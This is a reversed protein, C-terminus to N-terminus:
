LTEDEEVIEAQEEKDVFPTDKRMIVRSIRIGDLEIVEFTLNRDEVKDGIEPERGLLGFVYGGITQFDENPIDLDYRENIDEIDMQSSVNLTNDDIKILEPTPAEDFEDYIEGVIEEIIDEVTVIGAIGGHEDVVAAIQNKKSIFDSLLDSIFKNEPIIMIERALSKIEFGEKEYTKDRLAKLADKANIVGIINDVTDEYIPIRTHGSDIILDVLTDLNDEADVFVVKTRPVMIEKVVTQSFSYFNSLMDAEKDDFVDIKEGEQIIKDFKDEWNEEADNSDIEVSIHSINKFRERIKREVMESIDDAEKVQIEPDVEIKINVILGSTGMNMTKLEKVCSVCHLNEAIQKIVEEVQPEASLGTLLNVNNKLMYGALFLLMLAIIGSAIGDPIHALSEPLLYKSISVAIFAVIVGTLAVVDEYWVYKTTPTNIKHVYKISKIFDVFPNVHKVNAEDIVANVASNVAWSEFCISAILIIALVGYHNLLEDVGHTNIFIKNYASLLSVAAGFFMLICAVITWVNTELGHGFPHVGDAPRSGRKLGVMLCISNFSDVGSHVAEAFMASSKTFYWSALKILTIFINALFARVVARFKLNIAQKKESEAEVIDIEQPTSVSDSTM